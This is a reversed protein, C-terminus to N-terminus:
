SLDLFANGVSEKQLAFASILSSLDFFCQKTLDFTKGADHLQAAVWYLCILSPMELLNRCNLDFFANNGVVGWDLSVDLCILSPMELLNKGATCLCLDLLCILSPM